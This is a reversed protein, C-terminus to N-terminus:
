TRSPLGSKQNITTRFCIVQKRYGTFPVIIVCILPKHNTSANNRALTLWNNFIIEGVTGAMARFTRKPPFIAWERKKDARTNRRNIVRILSVCEEDSPIRLVLIPNLNAFSHICIYSIYLKHKAKRLEQLTRASIVSVMFDIFEVKNKNRPRPPTSPLKHLFCIEIILCRLAVKRWTASSYFNYYLICCNENM